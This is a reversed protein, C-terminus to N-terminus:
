LQEVFSATDSDMDYRFTTERLHLSETGRLRGWCLHIEKLKQPTGLKQVCNISM